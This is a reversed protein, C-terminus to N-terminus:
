KLLEEANEIPKGCTPCNERSLAEQAMDRAEQYKAGALEVVTGAQSYITLLHDWREFQKLAANLETRDPEEPIEPVWRSALAEAEDYQGLLAELDCAAYSTDELDQELAEIKQLIQDAKEVWALKELASELEEIEEAHFQAKAKRATLESRLYSMSEDALSLDVIKNIEAALQGPTLTLWFVPDHQGQFNLADVRLVEAVEEPPNSGFAKFEAGDLQYANQSGKGRLRKIVREDVRLAVSASESGRRIFERGKPLNLALWRIARIVSSKGTDSPGILTIIQDLKLRLDEWPQFDEIKLHTLM